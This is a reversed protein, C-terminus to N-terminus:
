IFNCIWRYIFSKHKEWFPAKQSCYHWRKFTGPVTIKKGVLNRLVRSFVEYFTGTLQKSLKGDYKDQLEERHPIFYELEICLTYSWIALCTSVTYRTIKPPWFIRPEAIDLWNTTAAQMLLYLYTVGCYFIRPGTNLWSFCLYKAGRFNGATRYSYM